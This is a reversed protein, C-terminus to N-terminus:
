TIGLGELGLGTSHAKALAAFSDECLIHCNSAIPHLQCSSTVLVVDSHASQLFTEFMFILDIHKSDLRFSQQSKLLNNEFPQLWTRQLMM